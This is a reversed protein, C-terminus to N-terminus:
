QLILPLTNVVSVSIVGIPPTPESGSLTVNSLLTPENAMIARFTGCEM